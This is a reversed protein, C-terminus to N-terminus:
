KPKRQPMSQVLAKLTLLYNIVMKDEIKVGKEYRHMVKNGFDRIDDLNLKKLREFKKEALSIIDQLKLKPFKYHYILIHELLARCMAISAVYLGFVFARVAENYLEVLPKINTYLAHDPIFLDPASGWRSNISNLDIGIVDKFYLYAGVQKDTFIEPM